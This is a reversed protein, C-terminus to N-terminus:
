VDSEAGGRAHDLGDVSDLCALANDRAGRVRRAPAVDLKRDTVKRM